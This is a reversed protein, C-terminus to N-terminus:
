KKRPVARWLPITEKGNSLNAVKDTSFPEIYGEWKQGPATTIKGHPNQIFILGPTMPTIVKKPKGDVTFGLTSKMKTPIFVIRNANIYAGGNQLRVIQGQIPHWTRKAKQYLKAAAVRNAESAEYQQKEWFLKWHTKRRNEEDLNAKKVATIPDFNYKNQLEKNLSFFSIRAMGKTHRITLADPEVKKVFCNKYVKGTTTRIEAFDPQPPTKAEQSLGKAASALLFVLFLVTFIPKLAYM